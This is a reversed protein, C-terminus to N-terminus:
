LKSKKQEKTRKMAKQGQTIHENELTNPNMLINAVYSFRGPFHKKLKIEQFLLLSKATLYSVFYQLHISKEQNLGM